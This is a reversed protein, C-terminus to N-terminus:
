EQLLLKLLQLQSEPMNRVGRLWMRVAHPTNNLRMSVGTATLNRAKMLRKLEARRQKATM